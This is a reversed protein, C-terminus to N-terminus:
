LCTVVAVLASAPLLELGCLYLFTSLGSCRKRLIQSSRFLAFAWFVCIEVLIARQAITRPLGFTECVAITVFLLPAILLLYNYPNRLIAYFAEGSLCQPRLALYCLRRFLLYALWLGITAPVGLGAPLRDWIDPCIVSYCDLILCFIPLYALASLNRTRALGLSHELVEAGRARDVCFLLHPMLRFYDLLNAVLLGVFVLCYVRNVPVDIWQAAQALDYWPTSSMDLTGSRFIEEGFM